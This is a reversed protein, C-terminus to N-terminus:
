RYIGVAWRNDQARSVDVHLSAPPHVLGLVVVGVASGRCQQAASLAGLTARVRGADCRAVVYLPGAGRPVRLVGARSTASMEVTAIRRVPRDIFGPQQFTLPLLSANPGHSRSDSIALEVTFAVVAAVLAAALAVIFIRRVSQQEAVSDDTM